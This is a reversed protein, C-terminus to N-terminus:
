TGARTQRGSPLIRAPEGDHRGTREFVQWREVVVETATRHVAAQQVRDADTAVMVEGARLLFDQLSETYDRSQLWGHIILHQGTRFSLGYHAGAPFAVTIYDYNGGAEHGRRPRGDDRRLSLRAYLNGDYTWTTKVEGDLHVENM